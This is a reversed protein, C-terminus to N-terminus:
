NLSSLHVPLQSSFKAALQGGPEENTSNRLTRLLKNNELQLTHCHM